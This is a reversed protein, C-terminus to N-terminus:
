LELLNSNTSVDSIFDTDIPGPAIANLRINEKGLEQSFVKTMTELAAKSIGYLALM